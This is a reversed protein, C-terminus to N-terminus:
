SKEETLETQLRLQKRKNEAPILRM